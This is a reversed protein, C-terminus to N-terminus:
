KGVTVKLQKDLKVKAKDPKPNDYIVVIKEKIKSKDKHSIKSVYPTDKKM